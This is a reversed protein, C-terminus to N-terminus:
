LSSLFYHDRNYNYDGDSPMKTYRSSRHCSYVSCYAQVATLVLFVFAAVFTYFKEASYVYKVMARNVKQSDDYKANVKKIVKELDQTNTPRISKSIGNFLDAVVQDSLETQIIERQVLLKVDERTGIIARMIEVYRSFVLPRKSDILSEYAMLNRMIVESNVNLKISPLSFMCTGEDYEIGSIGGLKAPQFGIGAKHLETVSPITAVSRVDKDPNKDRLIEESARKVGGVLLTVSKLLQNQSQRTSLSGYLSDVTPQILRSVYKLLDYISRLARMFLAPIHPFSDWACPIADPVDHTEEATTVKKKMRLPILDLLHDYEQPKKSLQQLHVLPCHKECLSQMKAGLDEQPQIEDSESKGKCFSAQNVQHLVPTPIQNELMYVDSIVADITLELGFSNVLPLGQRGTLFSYHQQPEADASWHLLALLFLGDQALAYSSEPKQFADAHYLHEYISKSIPIEFAHKFVRKAAALKLELTMTLKDDFSHYPGLGVFQPTFAEPKASCLSKPVRCGCARGCEEPEGEKIEIVVPM